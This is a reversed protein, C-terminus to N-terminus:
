GPGPPPGALTAQLARIMEDDDERPELARAEILLELARRSRLAAARPDGRGALAIAQERSLQAALRIRAPDRLMAALTRGDVANALGPPLDLLEGWAHDAEALARDHESRRNLGAIRAIADALQRVARLVYGDEWM